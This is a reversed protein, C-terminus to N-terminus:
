LCPREQRGASVAAAQTAGTGTVLASPARRGRPKKSASYLSFYSVQILGSCVIGLRYFTHKFIQYHLGELVNSEVLAAAKKMTEYQHFASVHSEADSLSILAFIQDEVTGKREARQLQKKHLKLAEEVRGLSLYCAGLQSM